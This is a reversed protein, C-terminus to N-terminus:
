FNVKDEYARRSNYVMDVIEQPSMEPYTRQLDAILRETAGKQYNQPANKITDIMSSIANNINVQVDQKIDAMSPAAAKKTSGSSARSKSSEEAQFKRDALTKAAESLASYETQLGALRNQDGLGAAQFLANVLSERRALDEQEVAKSRSLDGIARTLPESESSVMRNRQAETTDSGTTRSTVNADLNSLLGEQTALNKSIGSVRGLADEVGQEKRMRTLRAVPDEMNAYFSKIAELAASARENAIDYESRQSQPLIVTGVPVGSGGGGGLAKLLWQNQQSTGMYSGSGGKSSYIKSREALSPLRGGYYEYLNNAM